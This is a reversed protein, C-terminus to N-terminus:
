EYKETKIINETTNKDIGLLANEQDLKAKEIDVYDRGAKVINEPRYWVLLWVGLVVLFFLFAGIVMGVFYFWENSVKTFGLVIGLFGEVILLSLAFFGLPTTIAKIINSREEEM